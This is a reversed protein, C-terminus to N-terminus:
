RKFGWLNLQRHISRLKTAKFFHNAVDTMFKKDDRIKFSKGHPLWSVVDSLGNQEAYDLMECLKAPFPADSLHNCPPPQRPLVMSSSCSPVPSVPQM